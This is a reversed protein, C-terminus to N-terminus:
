YPPPLGAARFVRAKFDPASEDPAPALGLKKGHALIGSWTAHWAAPETKGQRERFVWLRWSEFWDPSMGAEGPRSRMYACFVASMADIKEPTWHPRERLAWARWRPPLSWDAPLPTSGAGASPSTTSCKRRRQATPRGTRGIVYPQPAPPSPQRVSVASTAVAAATPQESPRAPNIEAEDARPDPNGGVEIGSDAVPSGETYEEEFKSGPQTSGAGFELDGQDSQSPLEPHGAGAARRHAQGNLLPVADPCLRYLICSRNGGARRGTDQIVGLERLRGMAEVVTKRNLHTVRALYEISAFVTWESANYHVLQALNLLVLKSTSKKVDAQTAWRSAEISM